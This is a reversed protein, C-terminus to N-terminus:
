NKALLLVRWEKGYSKGCCTNHVFTNLIQDHFQKNEYTVLVWQGVNIPQRVVNEDIDGAAYSTDDHNVPVVDFDSSTSMGSLRGRPDFKCTSNEPDLYRERKRM